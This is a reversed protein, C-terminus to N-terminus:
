VREAMSTVFGLASPGRCWSISGGGVAGRTATSRPATAASVSRRGPLVPVSVLQSGSPNLFSLLFAGFRGFCGLLVGLCGDLFRVGRRGVSQCTARPGANSAVLKM